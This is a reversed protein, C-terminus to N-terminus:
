TGAEEILKKKLVPNNEAADVIKQDTMQQRKIKIAHHLLVLSVLFALVASSPGPTAGELAFGSLGYALGCVSLPLIGARELSLSRLIVGLSCVLISVVSLGVWLYLVPTGGPLMSLAINERTAVLFVHTGILGYVTLNIGDDVRRRDVLEIM